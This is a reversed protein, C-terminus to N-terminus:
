LPAGNNQAKNNKVLGSGGEIADGGLGKELTKKRQCKQNGTTEGVRCKRAGL